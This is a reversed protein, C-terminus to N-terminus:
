VVHVAAAFGAIKLALKFDIATITLLTLTAAADNVTSDKSATGCKEAGRTLLLKPARSTCDSDRARIVECFWFVNRNNEKALAGDTTLQGYDTTLFSM